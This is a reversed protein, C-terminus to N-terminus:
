KEHDILERTKQIDKNVQAILEDASGFAKEPRLYHLFVLKMSCGYLDQKMELLHPEIRLTKIPNEFTPRVGINTVATYSKGDIIASCAYVGMAPLLRDAAVDLNATPFGLKNGRHEGHVVKGDLAYARGLGANAQALKGDSLAKRIQSSSIIEGKVKFPPVVEVAYGMETGLAQLAPIDGARDHGLAFNFGVVLHTIGLKEKMTKMFDRASLGAVQQDFEVTIVSDIGLDLLLREREQISTLNYALPARKFFVAPNPSFTVVVAKNGDAHARAALDRALAQHGLHVGDFSGVAVWSKEVAISKFAKIM